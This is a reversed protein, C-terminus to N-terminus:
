KVKLYQLYPCQRRVLYLDTKDLVKLFIALYCLNEVIADHPFNNRKLYNVGEFQSIM